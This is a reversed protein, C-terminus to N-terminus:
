LAKGWFAGASDGTDEVYYEECSGCPDINMTAPDIDALVPKGRAHIIANVTACFTLPTTIV